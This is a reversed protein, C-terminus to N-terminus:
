ASAPTLDHGTFVLDARERTRDESFLRQEEAMWTLWYARLDEGDRAIGRRLRVPAPVEVWALTTISAAYTASGSGCGELVLLDVPPVEVWEAEEERQWDYRRYGGAEGRALPGVVTGAVKALGARLGGWGPFVDDMHLVRTQSQPAEVRWTDSIASSLTTKGSGAPGDVCVLRTPRTLGLTPSSRRAHDVVDEAASRAWAHVEDESM